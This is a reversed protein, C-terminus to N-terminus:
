FVRGTTSSNWEANEVVDRLNSLREFAIPAAHRPERVVPGKPGSGGWWGERLRTTAESASRRVPECM